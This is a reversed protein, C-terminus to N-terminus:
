RPPEVLTNLIKALRHAMWVAVEVDNLLAAVHLREDEPLASREADLTARLSELFAGRKRTRELLAVVEDSALRDAAVTAQRLLDDLAAMVNRAIAKAAPMDGLRRLSVSVDALADELHRITSLAGRLSQVRAAQAESLTGRAALQVAFREIALGLEVFAPNPVHEGDASPAGPQMCVSLMGLLRALEKQLLLIATRPDALAQSTLYRPTGPAEPTDAPVLRELLTACWGLAPTLALAPLLNSFLFVLALQLRIDPTLLQVGTRVLPVGNSELFDLALMCAGSAVCFLDEMRVLRRASGRLGLALLARLVIAGLNSGYILLVAEHLPFLGAAALTIVLMAAGTNSQLCAAAAIGAIFALLPHGLTTSIMARFWPEAALPAAGRAMSELGFLILGMGLLVGAEARRRSSHLLGWAIGAGGVLWAVLPHIDLTTVFALATLGVNCWVIVPLVASTEVLGTSVLGVLIFTVATASQMLAGFLVGVLSALPRSHITRQVLAGFSPGALQRLSLGILQIGLFFLGLGLVLTSLTPAPM